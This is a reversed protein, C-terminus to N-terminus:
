AQLWLAGAERARLDARQALAQELERHPNFAGGPSQHKM